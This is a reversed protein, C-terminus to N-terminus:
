SRSLRIWQVTIASGGPNFIKFHTHRGMDFRAWSDGPVRMSTAAADAMTAKDGFAIHCDGTAILAFLAKPAAIAASSAGANVSVNNADGAELIFISDLTAM